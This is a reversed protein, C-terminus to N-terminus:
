KETSEAPAPLSLLWGRSTFEDVMITATECARDVLEQPSQMKLKQRGASDEGDPIAAVAGWREIYNLAFVAHLNPAVTKYITVDERYGVHYGLGQIENQKEAM